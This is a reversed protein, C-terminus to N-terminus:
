ANESKRHFVLLAIGTLLLLTSIMSSALQPLMALPFSSTTGGFMKNMLNQVIPMWTWSGLVNILSVLAWGALWLFGIHRHRMWGIWVIALIAVTLLVHAMTNLTFIWMFPRNSQM